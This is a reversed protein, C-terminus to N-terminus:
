ATGMIWVQVIDGKSIKTGSPVDIYCNCDCLNSIVSSAHNESPLYVKSGSIRARVFRRLRNVKSYDDFLEASMKKPLLSDSQMLCAAAHYFYIDFNALAAYPNGSLSLIIKKNALSVTTPTGPQINVGSFLKKAGLNKLVCPLLDKKGVSIGGTTIIFDSDSLSNKLENLIIDEDDALIKEKSVCLGINKVSCSLMAGISSYIKGPLLPTKPESLESGTCLIAVRAKRRVKVSSLGLSSLLGLEARGIKRGKPIVLKGKKIDEGVACYNQGAMVPKYVLVKKEGYDTNEQMVVSDFGEPVPSGTMVRVASNKKYSINEWSGAFLEGSVDLLVPNEKTAGFVDEARVAYGDMASKAFPPVNESAYIDEFVIRSFSECLPCDEAEAVPLINKELSSVAEEIEM